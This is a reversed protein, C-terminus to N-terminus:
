QTGFYFYILSAVLLNQHHCCFSCMFYSKVDYSCNGPLISSFNFQCFFSIKQLHCPLYFIVVIQVLREETKLFTVCDLIVQKGTGSCQKYYKQVKEIPLSREVISDFNKLVEREFSGTYSIVTTLWYIVSFLVPCYQVLVLCFQKNGGQFPKKLKCYNDFSLCVPM